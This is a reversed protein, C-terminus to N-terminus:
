DRQAVYIRSAGIGLAASVAKYIREATRSDGGGDCVIVVGTIQPSYTKAVPADRVTKGDGAFIKEESAGVTVMVETKGVGKINTLMTALRDEVSKAYDEM